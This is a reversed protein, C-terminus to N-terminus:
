TGRDEICGRDEFHDCDEGDGHEEGEAGGGKCNGGQEEELGTVQTQALAVSMTEECMLIQETWTVSMREKREGIVCGGREVGGERRRDGIERRDCM